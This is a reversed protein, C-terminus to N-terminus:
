YTVRLGREVRRPNDVDSTNYGRSDIKTASDDKEVTVLASTGNPFIMEFITKAYRAGTNTEGTDWVGTTINEGGCFVAEGPDVPPDFIQTSSLNYLSNIEDSDLARNYVRVDDIIGDLNFPNISDSDSGIAVDNSNDVINGTVTKPAGVPLGDVYHQLSSGDYTFALHYWSGTSFGVIEDNAATWGTTGDTRVLNRVEGDAPFVGLQWQNQKRVVSREGAQLTNFTVWASITLGPETFSMSSSDSVDVYDDVGDFRLAGSIEGSTWVAGNVTGTNGNGSSDEATTGTGEDLKWHGVLGQNLEGLSPGGFAGNSLGPHNLDWYLACEAGADAASFAIQSDRITSSIVLEKIIINFVALGLSLLLSSILVSYLLTFGQKTSLQFNFTSLPAPNKGKAFIRSKQKYTRILKYKTTLKM